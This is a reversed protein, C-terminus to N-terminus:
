LKDYSVISFNQFQSELVVEIVNPLEPGMLRPSLGTGIKVYLDFFGPTWPKLGIETIIIDAVLTKTVFSSAAAWNFAVSKAWIEDFAVIRNGIAAYFNDSLAPGKYDVTATVRVTNGVTVGYLIQGAPVGTKYKAVGLEVAKLEHRLNDLERVTTAKNIGDVIQAITKM